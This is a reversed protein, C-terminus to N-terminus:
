PRIGIDAEFADWVEGWRELAADYADPDDDAKKLDSWDQGAAFAEAVLDGLPYGPLDHGNDFDFRKM